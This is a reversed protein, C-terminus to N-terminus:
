EMSEMKLTRELVEIETNFDMVDNSLSRSHQVQFAHLILDLISDSKALAANIEKSKADQSSLDVYLEIIKVTSEMYYLLFQRARTIDSPDKEFNAYIKEVVLIINEVKQKIKPNKIESSHSKLEDIKKRFEQLIEKSRKTEGTGIEYKLTYNQNAKAFILLGAIYSVISAPVSASLPLNLFLFFFSFVSGGTLGAFLNGKVTVKDKFFNKM